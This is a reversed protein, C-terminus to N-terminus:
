AYVILGKLGVESISIKRRTLRFVGIGNRSGDTNTNGEVTTLRGDENCQEVFAIHGMGGGFDYVVLSGASVLSLDALLQNPTFRTAGAISRAKNWHALVAATKPTPNPVGLQRAAENFAWYVFAQCWPFGAAGGGAPDLGVTSLFVDVEPGRNAGGSERVGIRTAAMALASAALLGSAQRVLPTAGSLAFWTLRGVVGDVTLPAGASDTHQAQFTKVAATMAADFFGDLPVQLGNAILAQQIAMVTPKDPENQRVPLKSLDLAM